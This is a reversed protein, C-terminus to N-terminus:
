DVTKLILVKLIGLKKLLKKFYHFQGIDIHRISGNTLFFCLWNATFQVYQARM